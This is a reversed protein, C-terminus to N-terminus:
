RHQVDGEVALVRARAAAKEIRHVDEPDSTRAQATAILTELHHLFLARAAPPSLVSLRAMLSISAIAFTPNDAGFHRIQSFSVDVLERLTARRLILRARGEDAGDATDGDIRWALELWVETIRQLANLATTPDNIGPSLGKLAIDMLELLGQGPDQHPTRELGLVLTSVLSSRLEGTVRAEPWVRMVEQDPLVYDGIEVEVAVRLDHTEALRRITGREIDQLYGARKARVRALDGEWGAAMEELTLSPPDAAGHARKEPYVTRVVHLANEAVSDIIVSAQISRALHNIFFILFGISTLALLVAVTVAVQPVFEEGAEESRVTRQVLLTFTFTGIFVGLVTQNVRDAMFRRLVRPTFQSSALQLAVITVSFVVGTVTIISGSISELVSRAGGATGGFVWWLDTGGLAQLIVTNFRVLTIAVAAGALTFLTPLFWLSEIVGYWLARLKEM